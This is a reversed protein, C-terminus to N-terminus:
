FRAYYLFKKFERSKSDLSKLYRLLIKEGKESDFDIFEVTQKHVKRFQRLRVDVFYGEFEPLRLTM